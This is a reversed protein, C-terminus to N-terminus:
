NCVIVWMLDHKIYTSMNAIRKFRKSSFSPFHMSKFRVWNISISQLM